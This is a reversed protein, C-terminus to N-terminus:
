KETDLLEQLTNRKYMYKQKIYYRDQGKTGKLEEKEQKNLCKIEDKIKEVLSDYKNAKAELEKIEERVDKYTEQYERRKNELENKLAFNETALKTSEKELRERDALINEIADIEKEKLIKRWGGSFLAANEELEKVIKIDEEINTKNSM